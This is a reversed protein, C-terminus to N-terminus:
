RGAPVVKGAPIEVAAAHGHLWKELNTYGDGDDDGNPNTPTVLRRTLPKWAPYGGVQGPSDIFSGTRNRIQRVIRVDVPDRDAPRAGTHALVYAEVDAAARLLPVDLSTSQAPEAQLRNTTGKNEHFGVVQWPDGNTPVWHPPGHDTNSNYFWNDSVYLNLIHGPSTNVLVAFRNDASAADRDAIFVNGRVTANVPIRQTGDGTISIGDWPASLYVFNNVIQVDTYNDRCLPNRGANYAMVNHHFSVRRTNRGILVGASHSEPTGTAEDTHGANALAEAFLSNCITIDHIAGGDSWTSLTEDVAWSGSVHDLVINYCEAGPDASIVFADRNNLAEGPPFASGPRSALHQVLMDHGYLVIPSGKVMIGPSPATQGAVTLYPSGVYIPIHLDIIGSIEFVVVRPGSVTLAACLSEPGADNLNTVRLVRGGRGAATTTGQWTGAQNAWYYPRDPYAANPGYRGAWSGWTPQETDNM